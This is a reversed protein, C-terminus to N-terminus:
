DIDVIQGVATDVYISSGSSPNSLNLYFWEPGEANRTYRTPVSITKYNDSPGFSLTGSTATYDVSNATGDSTAYDVTVVGTHTGSKAVTFVVPDGEIAQATSTSFVVPTGDNDNITGRGSGDDIVAGSSPNSLTVFLTENNEVMSDDTTSVTITKSTQGANFSVTGSKATYDSGATATGNSTAYSASVATNTTVSRTVTFSLTGGETVSANGISLQAAPFDDDNITGTASGDSIAAPGTPSSLTLTMTETSEQVTNETTSVTVNKSTQGPSFTLTGSKATYDSSATASGNATAYAVTVTSSAAESLTVAFVLNNGESASANAVSIGVVTDNDVITGVATSDGIQANGTVSSLTLMVTESSESTADDATAVTVTKSTQGPSFTLTGSAATYDSSSATGNSTAYDVTVAAAEAQNMTVVFSLNGGETVSADAVSISAVVPADDDSITGAGSYDEIGSNGSSSQLVVAMAETAEPVTDETTSITITKSYQLWSFSLSGSASTYDSGALATGDVTAYNVTVSSFSFGSKTVTFTLNGGETVTADSISFTVAPNGENDAITGIGSSDSITAGGTANSLALTLAESTEIYDDDLTTVTVTKSTEGASFTLTGSASTYDSGAEATGNSTVYDVTIASSAANSLSVVFSLNNGETATADAVSVSAAADNDTITGSASYQGLDAGTPSSLTLALAESSELAADDITSVTITKSTEGSLFTLTGSASTYDNGATASGDSTAYAVSVIGEAPKSLTVPFSLDAGEVM